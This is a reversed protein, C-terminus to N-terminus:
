IFEFKEGSGVLGYKEISIKRDEDDTVVGIITAKEGLSNLENLIVDASEFPCVLCFGIGMNLAAFVVTYPLNGVEKILEFIPPISPLNNIQYSCNVPIRALNLLGGGSINVLGNIPYGKKLLTIISKVYIRTPELLEEGLTRNLEDIQQDLTFRKNDLLVRRVLSYGNSHLGSSALGIIVNGPSVQMGNVLSPAEVFDESLSVLGVASGVLDLATEGKESALMEPVQAIEGGPITIGALEAGHCLGKALGELALEDVGNIAIYDLLAIPEAGLCILDNVNNAICDIGITDYYRMKQAIFLKTGVGDTTFALGRGGGLQLVNGFHGIGSLPAGIGKRFEFTRKFWPLMKNALTEQERPEDVGSQAYTLSSFKQNSNM